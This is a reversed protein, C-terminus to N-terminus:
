CAIALACKYAKKFDILIEYKRITNMYLKKGGRRKWCIEAILTLFAVVMGVAMVVYVGAMSM